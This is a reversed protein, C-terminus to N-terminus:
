WILAIDSRSDAIKSFQSLLSRCLFFSVEFGSVVMKRRCNGLLLITIPSNGVILSLWSGILSIETIAIAGIGIACVFEFSSKCGLGFLMRKRCPTTGLLLGVCSGFGEIWHCFPMVAIYWPRSQSIAIRPVAVALIKLLPMSNHTSIGSSAIAEIHLGSISPAIFWHCLGFSSRCSFGRLSM